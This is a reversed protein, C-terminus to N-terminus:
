AVEYSFGDWVEVKKVANRELVTRIDSPAQCMHIFPCPTFFSDCAGPANKSVVQENLAREVCTVMSDADLLLREKWEAIQDESRSTETRLFLKSPETYILWRNPDPNKTRKDPGYGSTSIVDFVVRDISENKMLDRALYLYGTAQDNPNVKKAYTDIYGTTKRELVSGDSLIGDITGKYYVDVPNGNHTITGLLVKHKTEYSAHTLDAPYYHLAYRSLLTLAHRLSRRSLAPARFLPYAKEAAEAATYRLVKLFLDNTEEPLPPAQDSLYEIEEDISEKSPLNTPNAKGLVECGFHILSGFDLPDTSGSAFGHIADYVFRQPCTMWAARTSYDVTISKLRKM